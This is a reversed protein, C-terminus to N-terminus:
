GGSLQHFLSDLSNLILHNPTLIVSIDKNSILLFKSEIQAFIFFLVVKLM